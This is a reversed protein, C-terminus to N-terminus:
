GAASATETEGASARGIEKPFAKAYALARKVLVRPWGFHRATKDASKTEGHVTAVEWVAVRHGTLYAERGSLSDRFSIGPFETELSKEIVYRAVLASKSTRAARAQKTVLREYRAPVRGSVYAWSMDELRHAQACFALSREIKPVGGTQEPNIATQQQIPVSAPQERCPLLKSTARRVSSSTITRLIM